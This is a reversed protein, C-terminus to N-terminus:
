PLRALAMLSGGDDVVAIVGGANHRRAESEAAAIIRREGDLTLSKKAAFGTHDALAVGALLLTWFITKM